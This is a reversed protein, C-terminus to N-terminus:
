PKAKLQEELFRVAHGLESAQNGRKRSGHGEDAFIILPSVVKRAELAQHMQVAEGVPVRPDNAGQMIMLPGKVRDVYTVPSLKLLVEKDKEPDGYENVRLARRYPATNSLFTVLNGIGVISV